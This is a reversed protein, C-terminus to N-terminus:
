WANNLVTDTVARGNVTMVYYNPSIIYAFADKIKKKNLFLKSRFWLTNQNMQSSGMWMAKWSKKEMIGTIFLGVDSLYENMQNDIIKVQYYYREATELAEGGYTINTSLDSLVTGSDWIAMSSDEFPDKHKSVILRYSLQKVGELAGIGQWSFRPRELDIGIPNELYECFIKIRM